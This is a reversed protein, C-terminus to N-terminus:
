SIFKVSGQLKQTHRLSSRSFTFFVLVRKKKNLRFWIQFSSIQWLMKVAFVIFSSPLATLVRFFFRYSLHHNECRPPLYASLPKRNPIAVASPVVEVLSFLVELRVFFSVVTLGDAPKHLECEICCGQSAAQLKKLLGLTFHRGNGRM